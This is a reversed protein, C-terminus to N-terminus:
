RYYNIRIEDYNDFGIKSPHERAWYDPNRKLVILEGPRVTEITYPGSAIMPTLTSRDFRDADTAHRPLIPLLAILLPTERDAEPKLNFRVSREGTIVMSEVLGLWGRYLPRSRDRLLEMSFVVDEPTVPQGDSFRAAPDLHFEIFTREEDMEVSEAILPYLTFAEDRSRAMLAEFVNYGFQQDFLGRTADGQVIFPNLSDFTGRVAYDIRGGKPAEPNVYPFHPYDPPLAPEGHMAIAHRPEAAAPVAAQLLAAACLLFMKSKSQM